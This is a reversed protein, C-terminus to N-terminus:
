ATLVSLASVRGGSVRCRAVRSGMFRVSAVDGRVGAPRPDLSVGPHEANYALERAVFAELDLPEPELGEATFGPACLDRLADPDREIARFVVLAIAMPGLHIEVLPSRAAWDPHELAAFVEARESPDRIARGFGPEDGIVLRPNAVLNAYWGRRGPPGTLFQRDGALWVWTEIRRLEGSRRGTTSIDVTRHM